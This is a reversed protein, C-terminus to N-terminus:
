FALQLALRASRGYRPVTLLPVEPGVPYGARPQRVDLLNFLGVFYRLRWPPYAGSLTVNWIFADELRENTRTRRGVDLVMESGLRMREPVLPYLWRLAAVLEPANTFRRAHGAQHTRVDQWSASAAVFTGPQPEWRFEADGGLSHIAADSNRYRLLASAGADRELVILNSLRVAFLSASVSLERDVLHSHEIEVSAVDEPKLAAAPVQTVGDDSYFREYSSPARFARGALLKTNGGAYPRGVVALKPNWTTGFGNQYRDARLGASVRLSESVRWVDVVHGSLVLEREGGAAKQAVRSPAGLDLELQGQVEAGLRLNQRAVEPLDFRVEGTVWQARFRDGLATTPPPGGPDALPRYHGVFRSLDYAGRALLQAKGVAAATSLEVFLREDFYETGPAPQTDFAGTPVDKTRRNIAARLGFPGARAYLDAHRANEGDAKHAVPAGPDTGWVFRRDGLQSLAAASASAEVRQGRVSAGLRGGVMGLTATQGGLSAHVGPSPRRTVVNIVGFLAGTGHLVAGPGRAVEIREVQSLDVDFGRGVFGQGTLVDNIPHGDILVLVRNTYDGPPSFGRFGVSPYIRDNSSFAGRVGALADALTAYGFAAIEEATIVTISAPAQAAAVLERTPGSVQSETRRLRLDVYAPGAADVEVSAQARSHGEKEAVVERRGLAVGEIVLPTFGVERGDVRVLAGEVNARVVISGRLTRRLRLDLASVTDARVDVEARIEEYGPASVFLTHHGPALAVEGSGTRLVEGLRGGRRVVATPPLGALRVRGFIKELVVSVTKETGLQPQVETAFPRYGPLDLLLTNTGEPVAILKPTSGLAGLDKRELYIEAGPPESTVRYLALQPRLREISQGITAQEEEPLKDSELASWARFAENYRRLKELTRAINFQVNRNPVLRDSLYYEALADEFRGQRYFTNGRLFRFQAEDGRPAAMVALPPLGSALVFIALALTFFRM